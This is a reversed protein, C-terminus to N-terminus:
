ILQDFDIAERNAEIARAVAMPDGFQPCKFDAALGSRHASSVAGGGGANGRPSRYGSSVDIPAGLVLRVRELGAALCKLNGILEIPPDNSIEHPLPYDSAVLEELTLHITLRM